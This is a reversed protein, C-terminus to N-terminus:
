YSRMQRQRAPLRRALQASILLTAFIWGVMVPIAWGAQSRSVVPHNVSWWVVPFDGATFLTACLFFLRALNAWGFTGRLHLLVAFLPLVILATTVEIGILWELRPGWDMTTTMEAIPFIRGWPFCWILATGAAPFGIEIWHLRLQSSVGIMIAVLVQRWFWRSSRGERFRELLDGTLAERNCKPYLRRLFWLALAPPQERETNM